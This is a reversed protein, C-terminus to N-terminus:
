VEKTSSLIKFFFIENRKSEHSIKKIDSTISESQNACINKVMTFLSSTIGSSTKTAGKLREQIAKVNFLTETNSIVPIWVM